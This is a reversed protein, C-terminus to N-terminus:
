LVLVELSRTHVSGRASQSTYEIYDYKGNWVSSVKRPESISCAFESISCTFESISCSSESISSLFESIFGIEGIPISFECMFHLSDSMFHLFKIM